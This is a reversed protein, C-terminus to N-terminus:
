NIINKRMYNQTWPCLALCKLCTTCKYVDVLDDRTSKISWTNGKIANVQCIDKCITCNGCKSNSPTHLVTKLPANTLVTCMSLASGYEPTVLLNHKGIWGLGALGAITKHPLPTSKTKEDFFGSSLINDESQSYASHGKKTLYHAIYDAIKDTKTEKLHFEDNKVQKNRIMNPVYDPTSSIIRIYHPSLPIGILIATSYRKNQAESLHSIDVFHVLEAGQSILESKIEQEM